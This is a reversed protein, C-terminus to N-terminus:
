LRGELAAMEELSVSPLLRSILWLEQLIDPGTFNTIRFVSFPFCARDTANCHQLKGTTCFGSMKGRNQGEKTLHRKGLVTYTYKQIPPFIHMINSLEDRETTIAVDLSNKAIFVLQPDTPLM